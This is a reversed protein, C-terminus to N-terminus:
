LEPTEPLLIEGKMVGPDRSSTAVLRVFVTSKKVSLTNQNKLRSHSSSIGKGFSLRRGGSGPQSHCLYHLTAENRGPPLPLTIAMLAPGAGSSWPSNIMRHGIPQFPFRTWLGPIHIFLVIRCELLEPFLTQPQLNSGEPTQRKWVHKKRRECPKESPTPVLM